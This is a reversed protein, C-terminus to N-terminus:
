RCSINFTSIKLIDKTFNQYSDQSSKECKIYKSILGPDINHQCYLCSYSGAKTYTRNNSFSHNKYKKRPCIEGTKIYNIEMHNEKKTTNIM